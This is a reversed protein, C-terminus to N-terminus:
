VYVYQPQQNELTQQNELPQEQLPEGYITHTDLNNKEDGFGLQAMYDFYDRRKQPTDYIPETNDINLKPNVEQNQLKSNKINDVTQQLLDYSNKYDDQQQLPEDQQQTPEDQQQTPEQIPPSISSYYYQNSNYPNVIPNYPQQQQIPHSPHSPLMPRDVLLTHYQATLIIKKVPQKKVKKPKKVKPKKIRTKRKPM